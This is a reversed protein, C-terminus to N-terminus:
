EDTAGEPGQLVHSGADASPHEARDPSGTESQPQMVVLPASDVADIVEGAPLALLAPLDRATLRGLAHIIALGRDPDLLAQRVEPALADAFSDTTVNVTVPSGARPQWLGHSANGLLRICESASKVLPAISKLDGTRQATALAADIQDVYGALKDLLADADLDARREAARALRPGIHDTKHRQVAASSLGFRAAIHRVTETAMAADIEGRKEHRCATCTRSM